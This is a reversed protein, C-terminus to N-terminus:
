LLICIMGGSGENVIKSLTEQLKEQTEPPMRTLKGSLGERMMEHLPKGFFDTQWIAKPDEEYKKLLNAVFEESQQETGVLPSVEMNIDAKVIHLSPATARLRVGYRSGQRVMEPESLTLEEMAPIVLGYGTEKVSKMADAVHDYEAKAHMLEKMLSLLHADDAIPLACEESLVRNFAGDRAHLEFTVGGTGLSMEENVLGDTAEASAFVSKVMGADRMRVSEAGLRQANELAERIVPHEDDLAYFWDPLKIRIERLPFALLISQLVGEIEDETIESLNLPTVAVGHHSAIEKATRVAREANPEASNLLVVFPKGLAKMQAIIRGEADVFSDREIEGFSGDATIVVGITAHEKMVKETGVKAAQTFPIEEDSWPTHVMRDGDEGGDLAGDVMFGVSDVLRLRVKGASPLNVEAARSPIFSPQTTMATRGSGMQPLEDVARKKHAGEDMRPLVVEEMFRTIFTSKGTRVPGIVGIYIDGETRTAIDQYVDYEM